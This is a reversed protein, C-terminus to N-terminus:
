EPYLILIEYTNKEEKKGQLPVQVVSTNHTGLLAKGTAWCDRLGRGESRRTNELNANIEKNQEKGEAFIIDKYRTTTAYM